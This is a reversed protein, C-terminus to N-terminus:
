LRHVHNPLVLKRIAKLGTELKKKDLKGTRQVELLEDVKELAEDNRQKLHDAIERLEAQAKDFARTVTPQRSAM